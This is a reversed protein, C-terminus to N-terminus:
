SVAGSGRSTWHFNLGIREDEEGQALFTEPNHTVQQNADLIEHAVVIV